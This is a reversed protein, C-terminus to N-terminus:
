AGGSGRLQRSRRVAYSRLGPKEPAAGMEGRRGRQCASRAHGLIRRSFSKKAPMWTRTRSRCIGTLKWSKSADNNKKRTPKKIPNPQKIWAATDFNDNAM